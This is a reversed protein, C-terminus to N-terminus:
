QNSFASMMEQADRSPDIWEDYRDLVDYDKKGALIIETLNCV